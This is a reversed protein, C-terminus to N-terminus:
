LLMSGNTIRSVPWRVFPYFAGPRFKVGFVKGQDELRRAFKGTNVGFVGSRDKEIALNICPYPLTEQVYPPQGRLDWHIIWYREVFFAIHPAPLHRTIQFKKEAVQPNLIGRSNLVNPQM